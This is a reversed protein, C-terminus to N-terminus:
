DNLHGKFISNFNPNKITPEQINLRNKAVIKNIPNITLKREAVGSLGTSVELYGVVNILGVLSQNLAPTIDPRIRLLAKTETDRDETSHATIIVNIPADQLWTFFADMVYTSKKYDVWLPVLPDRSRTGDPKKTVIDLDDRMQNAQIRGITEIVITSYAKAAVIQRCVAFIEEFSNPYMVKIKELGPTNRLTETSKEPDIFGPNPASAALTTKGAGAPGYLFFKIFPIHEDVPKFKDLLNM